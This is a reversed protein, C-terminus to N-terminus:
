FSFRMGAKPVVINSGSVDSIWIFGAHFSILENINRSVTIEAFPSTDYEEHIQKDLFVVETESFLVGAGAELNIAGLDFVKVLEFYGGYIRLESDGESDKSKLALNGLHTLGVRYSLSSSAYTFSVNQNLGAKYNENSPLTAGISADVQMDSDALASTIQFAAGFIFVASLRKLQHIM